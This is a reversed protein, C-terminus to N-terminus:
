WGNIQCIARVKSYIMNIVKIEDEIMRGNQELSKIEIEPLLKDAPPLYPTKIEKELLKEQIYIM